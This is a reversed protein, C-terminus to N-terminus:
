VRSQDLKAESSIRMESVAACDIAKMAITEGRPFDLSRWLCLLLSFRLQYLSTGTANIRLIVQAQSFRALITYHYSVPFSPVTGFIM